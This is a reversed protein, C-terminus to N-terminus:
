GSMKGMWVPKIHKVWLEIERVTVDRAKALLDATQVLMRALNEDIVKDPESWRAKGLCDTYFGIQKLRDLIHPHDSGTDVLPRLDDLSRGGNATLQPLQWAM